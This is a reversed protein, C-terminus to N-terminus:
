IFTATVGDIPLGAAAIRRMVGPGADFLFVRPGVVVATAPGSAGPSPLPYGTGLMGVVTSDGTPMPPRGPHVRQADATALLGMSWLAVLAVCGVRGVRRMYCQATLPIACARVILWCPM